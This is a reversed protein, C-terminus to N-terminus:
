QELGQVTPRNSPRVASCADGTHICYLGGKTDGAAFVCVWGPVSKLAFEYVRFDTGQSNIRQVALSKTPLTTLASGDEFVYVDAWIWGIVALIIIASAMILKMKM